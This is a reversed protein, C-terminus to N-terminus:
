KAPVAILLLRAVALKAPHTAPKVPLLQTPSSVPPVLLVPGMPSESGPLVLLASELPPLANHVPPVLRALERETSMSLIQPAPQVLSAM